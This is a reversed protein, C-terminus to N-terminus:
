DWGSGVQSPRHERRCVCDLLGFERTAIAPHQFESQHTTGEPFTYPWVAAISRGTLVTPNLADPPFGDVVRINSTAASTATPVDVQLYFPPNQAPRSGYPMQSVADYFIGYGGRIVTKGAAQWAFGVRPSFNNRDPKQFSREQLSTGRVPVFKGYDPSGTEISFNQQRDNQETYPQQYEYRM